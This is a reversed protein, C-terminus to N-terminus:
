HLPPKAAAPLIDPLRGDGCSGLACLRGRMPPSAQVMLHFLANQEFSGHVGEAGPGRAFIVVDEGSHTESKLPVTSEQLYDAAATDVEDLDPRQVATAAYHAPEHPFRKSGAPQTASEAVQGPGNAYGLTTYSRGAGDRSLGGVSAEDEDHGRVKGLIPNGRKPYGAMTLTHSHDATVVILTDDAATALVAARVADSFGVTEELARYANGRHHAHDIRGGEVM